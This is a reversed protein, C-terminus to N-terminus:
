ETDFRLVSPLDARTRTLFSMQQELVLQRERNAALAQELSELTAAMCESKEGNEIAELSFAACDTMRKRARRLQESEKEIQPQIGDFARALSRFRRHDVNKRFPFAFSTLPM